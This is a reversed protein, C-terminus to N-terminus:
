DMERSPFVPERQPLPEQGTLGIYLEEQLQPRTITQIAERQKPTLEDPTQGGGYIDEMLQPRYGM